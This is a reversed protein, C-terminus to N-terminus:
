NWALIWVLAYFLFRVKSHFWKRKFHSESSYMKDNERDSLNYYDIINMLVCKLFNLLFLFALMKKKLKATCKNMWKIWKGPFIVFLYVQTIVLLFIVTRVNTNRIERQIRISYTDELLADLLIAALVPSFPRAMPLGELQVYLKENFVFYSGKKTCLDILFVNRTVTTHKTIENWKQM